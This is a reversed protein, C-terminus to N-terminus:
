PRPVEAAASGLGELCADRYAGIESARPGFRSARGEADTALIGREALDEFADEVDPLHAIGGTDRVVEAAGVPVPEGPRGQGLAAAAAAYDRCVPAALAQVLQQVRPDALEAEVDVRAAPIWGNRRTHSEVAPNGPFALVAEPYFLHQFHSRFSREVAGHVPRGLRPVDLVRGGRRVIAACLWPLEVGEPRAAELFARLLHTTAVTRGQLQGMVECGVDHVDRSLDLLAPRGCAIHVRGLEIEGRVMRLSWALLDRLRMPPKPAGGLEDLFSREEPVHDYGIAVPLLACPRGTAQLSRVLGRRPPLFRRARSRRGEIFFELAAGQGVLQHVRRTLRKDERGRGRELYFAHMRRFLWGLLPIRSFEVAAAVHPIPIGLDPRAFCLYSCLVFDLYSRHTPTLVLAAGAPVAELAERFSDVDVTVRDVCRALTKDVAYGALRIFANGQPQRLVWVADTGERRHRRGALTVETTDGGLLHRYVGRCTTDLYDGPDFGTEDLPVSSRFRFTNYTFYAFSRNTDAIRDALSASEPRRHHQLWHVLRYIPGDRGLYRLRAPAAGPVPNREFFVPVRERCLRLSPSNEYGAVAHRIPPAQGRRPPSFAAAIVREAVADVPVLDLRARPRAMVARMRGSGIMMAFVAFAAPSDIWGPFPQRLSAAIISPRVFGLPLGGRRETLLHEAICKTLTYTNPHGTERLLRAQEEEGDHRGAAIEAHLQEAPRPLPALREEVPHRDGRHPTVYATSVDVMSVTRPLSRALALTNLASTVNATLAAAVPLHFEVSAACHIVHTVRRALRERATGALGCGAEVLDGTVLSVRRAWGEPRQSFCPSGVIEEAFRAEPASDARPRVLVHVRDVGLQSQRRLLEHLVVKGLFGTAGTLLVEARADGEQELSGGM